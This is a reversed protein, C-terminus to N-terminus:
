LDNSSLSTIKMPLIFGEEDNGEWQVKTNKHLNEIM